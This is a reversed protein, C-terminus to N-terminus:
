EDEEAADMARLTRLAERTVDTVTKAVTASFSAREVAGIIRNTIFVATACIMFTHALREM